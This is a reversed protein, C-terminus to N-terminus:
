NRDEVIKGNLQRIWGGEFQQELGGAKVPQLPGVPYGFPGNEYGTSGWHDFIDSAPTPQAGTEPTWYISGHEFRQLAGRELPIEGGEIPLGLDSELGGLERYKKAIDGVIVRPESDGIKVIYGGVFEQAAGGPIDRRNAVPYGLKGTEWGMAGWANMMDGLVEIAGREPTWYISGRQFNVYRGIGDPTIMESTTPFGLPSKAAGLERYRNGIRGWVVHAGSEARWYATGGTFDQAVGGNGVGYEDSLCTGVGILTSVAKEIEGGVKCVVGRDSEPMKLADALTPWAQSVEFQWYPWTHTGSDRFKVVPHVDQEDAYKLFTEATMRAIVEMAYGTPNNPKTPDYASPVDWEGTNGNGASLYIAMNKLKGVNLKPDNDKWRGGDLPGWMKTADYGGSNRMTAAIAQPMGPSSTDLYGSLSGVFKWMDATHAAVNMAATGGMSIGFLGRDENARFENTVVPILEKTLFTEWQYNKGNDPQDWDAYFSSEGGAPMVVIVNKDEYFREVNTARIWGSYDDYARLGDLHYVSPFTRKTDRYWDRPLLIEVQIPKGPMAASNIHAILHHDTYWSLKEVSVGSPLNPVAPTEEKFPTREPGPMPQPMFLEGPKGQMLKKIIAPDQGTAKAIDEPSAGNALAKMANQVVDEPVGADIAAKAADAPAQGGAAPVAGPATDAAPANKQADLVEQYSPLDKDADSAPEAVATPAILALTVPVTILAAIRRLVSARQRM